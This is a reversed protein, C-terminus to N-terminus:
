KKNSKQVINNFSFRKIENSFLRILIQIDKNHIM